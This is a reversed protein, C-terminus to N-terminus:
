VANNVDMKITSSLTIRHELELPLYSKAGCFRFLSLCEQFSRISRDATSILLDELIEFEYEAYVDLFVKTFQILEDAKFNKHKGVNLWNISYEVNKSLQEDTLIIYERNNVREEFIKAIEIKQWERTIPRREGNVVNYLDKMYRVFVAINHEEGTTRDFGNMVIDTSMTNASNEQWIRPHLVGLENAIQITAELPLLPVQTKITVDSFKHRLLRIARRELDSAEVLHAKTKPDIRRHRRGVRWTDKTGVFPQERGSKRRKVEWREIKKCAEETIRAQNM